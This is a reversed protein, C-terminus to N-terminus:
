RPLLLVRMRLRLAGCVVAAAKEEQPTEQAKEQEARKTSNSILNLASLV